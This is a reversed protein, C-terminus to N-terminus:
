ENKLQTLDEGNSFASPVLEELATGLRSDITMLFAETTKGWPADVLMEKLCERVYKEANFGTSEGVSNWTLCETMLKNRKAWSLQKISVDFSDGTEEITITRKSAEQTIQYKSLDFTASKKQKAEVM